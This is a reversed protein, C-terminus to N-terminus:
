KGDRKEEERSCDGSVKICAWLILVSGIVVLAAVVICLNIDTQTM